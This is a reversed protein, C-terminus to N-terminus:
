ITKTVSEIAKQGEEGYKNVLEKKVADVITTIIEEKSQTLVGVDSEVIEKFRERLQNKFDQMETVLSEGIAKIKKNASARGIEIIAYFLIDLEREYFALISAYKNKRDEYEQSLDNKLKEYENRINNTAKKGYSSSSFIKWVLVALVTTPIGILPLPTNLYGVVIDLIKKALEKDYIYLSVYGGLVLVLLSILIAKIVNLFKKM